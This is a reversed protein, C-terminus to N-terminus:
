MGLVHEVTHIITNLHAMTLIWVMGFIFTFTMRFALSKETKNEKNNKMNKKTEETTDRV